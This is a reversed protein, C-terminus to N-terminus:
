VMEGEQIWSVVFRRGPNNKRVQRAKGINHVPDYSKLVQGRELWLPSGLFTWRASSNGLLPGDWGTGINEEGRKDFTFWINFTAISAPATALDYSADITKSSPM